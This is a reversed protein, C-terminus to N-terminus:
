VKLKSKKPSLTTTESFRCSEKHTERLKPKPNRFSLNSKELTDWVLFGPFQGKVNDFSDAPM